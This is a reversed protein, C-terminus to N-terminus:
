TVAVERVGERGAGGIGIRVADELEDEVAKEVLEETV